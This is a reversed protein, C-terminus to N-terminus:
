PLESEGASLTLWEHGVSLSTGFDLTRLSMSVDHENELIAVSSGLGTAIGYEPGSYTGLVENGPCTEGAWALPIDVLSTGVVADIVLGVRPGALVVPFELTDGGQEEVQLTASAVDLSVGAGLRAAVLETLVADVLTLDALEGASGCGLLLALTM